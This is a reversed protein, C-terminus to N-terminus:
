YKSEKKLFYVHAVAGLVILAAASLTFANHDTWGLAYGLLLLMAGLCLTAFGSHRIHKKISSTNMRNCFYPSFDIYTAIFVYFIMCKFHLLLFFLNFSAAAYMIFSRLTLPFCYRQVANQLIMFLNIM